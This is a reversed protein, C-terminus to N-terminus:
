DIVRFGFFWRVWFSLNNPQPSAIALNVSFMVEHLGEHWM